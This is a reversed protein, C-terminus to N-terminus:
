SAWHPCSDRRTAEVEMEAQHSWTRSEQLLASFCCCYHSYYYCHTHCCATTTCRCCTATFTTTAASLLLAANSYQGTNSSSQPIIAQARLQGMFNGTNFHTGDQPVATRILRHRTSYWRPKHEHRSIDTAHNNVFAALEKPSLFSTVPLVISQSMSAGAFGVLTQLCV